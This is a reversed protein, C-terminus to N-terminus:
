DLRNITVDDANLTAVETNNIDIHEVGDTEVIVPDRGDDTDIDLSGIGIVGTDDNVITDRLRDVYVDEGAGLGVATSGDTLTGGIHDVLRDRLNDNGTYTDETLVTVSITLGVEAPRSFRVDVGGDISPITVQREVGQGDDVVVGAQLRFLETVAVTDALTEAIETENGGSVIVETSYPPLEDAGDDTPDDFTDTPNSVITVGRVGDLKRLATDISNPTAAGGIATSELARQRLEEDSERDVGSTLSNGDTDEFQEDGTPVPNTVDEVGSILTPMVTLKDAPLNTDAGGRVAEINVTVEQEGEDITASETTQFTVGGDVTTVRTGEPIIFDDPAPSSRSFTAIGTAPVAPRRELGLERVKRDLAAGTASVLYAQESVEALSQEQQAAVTNTFMSLFAGLVDVDDLAPNDLSEELSEEAPARVDTENRPIYM